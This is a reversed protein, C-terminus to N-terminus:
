AAGMIHAALARALAGPDAADIAGFSLRELPARRTAPMAHAMQAMQALLACRLTQTFRREFQRRKGGEWPANDFVMRGIHLRLKM